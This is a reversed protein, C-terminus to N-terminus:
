APTSTEGEASLEPTASPEPTVAPTEPISAPEPASPEEDALIDIPGKVRVGSLAAPRKIHSEELKVSVIKSIGSREM